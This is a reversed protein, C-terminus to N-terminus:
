DLFGGIDGFADAGGSPAIRCILGVFFGIVAGMIAHDFQNGIWYGLSTTLALLIITGM